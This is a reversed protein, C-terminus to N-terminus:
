AKEALSKRDQPLSRPPRMMAYCGANSQSCVLRVTTMFTNLPSLCFRSSEAKMATESMSLLKLIEGKKKKGKVKYDWCFLNRAPAV